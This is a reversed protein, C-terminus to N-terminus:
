RMAKRGAGTTTRSRSRRCSRTSRACSRRVAAPTSSRTSPPTRGRAPAYWRSSWLMLRVTIRGDLAVIDVATPVVDQPLLFTFQLLGPQNCLSTMGDGAPASFFGIRESNWRRNGDTIVGNCIADAPAPGSRDVTIVTLVTGPPLPPGFESPSRNLHRIADIKWTHGDADGSGGAPVVAGPVVTHRYGAWSEALGGLGTFVLVALAAAAVVAGILNRVWLASWSRM